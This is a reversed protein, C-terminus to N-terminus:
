LRKKRNELRLRIITMLDGPTKEGFLLAVLVYVLVGGLGPIAVLLFRLLITDASGSALIRRLLIMVGGSAVVAPVLRLLEAGLRWLRRSPLDLRQVLIWGMALVATYSSICTALAIGKQKLPFMLVLNLLLNLLLCWAGVIVPTRTDQRSIFGARVIKLAAFAPIGPAYFLLAGVTFELSKADFAGHLFILSVIPKALLLVGLMCPLSLFLVHRFSYELASAVTERNGIVVAQSLMPLSAASLAVAFVGVPLYVLRESFYLSSVAAAGVFGAIWRDMIVNLPHLSAGLILPVMLQLVQRVRPSSFDLRFRFRFGYRRLVPLLVALQLVGALPVAISLALALHAGGFMYLAVILVLNLFVSSYAPVSYHGLSNLVGSLFGAACLFIAYPLLWPLFRLPMEYNGGPFFARWGMAGMALVLVLGGVITSSISVVTSVLAFAERKGEKALLENFVPIGAESLAGEGFLRRFLNPITFAQIFGALVKGSGGYQALLIDRFLGFIRSTLIGGIGVFMNRSIRNHAANGAM